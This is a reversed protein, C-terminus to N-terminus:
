QHTTQQQSELRALRQQIANLDLVQRIASMVEQHRAEARRDVAETQRELADMRKNFEGLRQDVADFRVKSTKDAEALRRDVADFRVKSTKDAEAFRQDVADFRVKSTKDAEAFRQDVADFRMKSTKDTEAFREDIRKELADLRVAIARLEPALFDQLVKRSDEIVGM